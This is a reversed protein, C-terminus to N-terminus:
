IYETPRSTLTASRILHPNAGAHTRNGGYRLAFIMVFETGQSPVHTQSDTFVIYICIYVYIYIYICVYIYMIYHICIYMYMYKNVCSYVYICVYVCMRTYTHLVCKYVYM